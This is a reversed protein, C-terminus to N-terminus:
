SRPPPPEPPVIWDSMLPSSYGTSDLPVADLLAVTFTAPLMLPALVSVLASALDDQMGQLRCRSRDAPRGHMPCLDHDAGHACTCVIDAASSESTCALIAPAIMVLFHLSLWAATLPVLLYRFGSV